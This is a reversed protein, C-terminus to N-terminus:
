RGCDTTAAPDIAIITLGRRMDELADGPQCDIALDTGLLAGGLLEIMACVASGKHGGFPLQAGDLAAAPARTPAGSSDVAWGSDLPTGARRRVEIEGRACAATAFDFVFAPQPEAEAGDDCPAGPCGFAFPNTGLLRERGGHPAVYPPTNAALLCVLGENVALREAPQWLTGGIGRWGAVSAVAVGNARAAAAVAPFAADLAPALLNGGADVCVVGSRPTTVVPRAHLAVRGRRMIATIQPLRHLGHSHCGDREAAALSAALPAAVFPPAGAAVMARTALAEAEAVSLARPAPLATPPMAGPAAAPM